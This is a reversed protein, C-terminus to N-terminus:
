CPSILVEAIFLESPHHHTVGWVVVGILLELRCIQAVIVVLLELWYHCGRVGIWLELWCSGGTVRVLLELCCSWSVDGALMESGDTQDMVRIQGVRIWLNLRWGVAGVQLALRYRDGLVGM